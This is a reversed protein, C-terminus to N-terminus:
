WYCAGEVNKAARPTEGETPKVWYENMLAKYAGPPLLSFYEDGMGYEKIWRNGTIGFMLQTAGGLHIGQHGTRKAHAALCFGYAGCGIIAVDYPEKDMEAKMFDLAEFWDKFAENGGGISQVAKVIRLSAFQPLVDPNEFILERRKYQSAISEAFPHVVVVRKGKLARSWPRSSHWPELFVLKVKRARPYLDVVMREADWCSGLIDLERTDELMLRGFRALAEETAPFFGANNTLLQVGLRNWWWQPERSQIYKLYSHSSRAVGMYNVMSTLENGGFRAVMCPRGTTLLDYILDNAVDPDRVIEPDTYKVPHVMRYMYRLGKLGKQLLTEKFEM